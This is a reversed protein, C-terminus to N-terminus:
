YNSQAIIKLIAQEDAESAAEQKHVLTALTAPSDEAEILPAVAAKADAAEAQAEIAAKEASKVQQLVRESLSKIFARSSVAAALCFGALVFVFLKSYAEMKGNVGRIKNILDISTMNLFLPAMFSATIGVAVHKWWKLPHEGAPDALFCNVLGGLIGSALMVLAIVCLDKM